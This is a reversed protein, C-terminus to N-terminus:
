VQEHRLGKRQLNLGMIYSDWDFLLCRLADTNSGDMSVVAAEAGATDGDAADAAFATPMMISVCMVLALLLALARKVNHKRKKTKSM